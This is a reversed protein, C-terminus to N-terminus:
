FSSISPRILIAQNCWGTFLCTVEGKGIIPYFLIVFRLGGLFSLDVMLRGSKHEHPRLIAVFSNPICFFMFLLDPNPYITIFLTSRKLIMAHLQWQRLNWKFQEHYSRYRELSIMKMLTHNWTGTVFSIDRRHRSIPSSDFILRVM